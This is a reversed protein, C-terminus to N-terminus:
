FNYSLGGSVLYLRSNDSQNEHFELDFSLLIDFNLEEFISASGIFNARDFLFESRYDSDNKYIRKGFKNEIMFFLCNCANVVFWGASLSAGFNGLGDPAYFGEPLEPGGEGSEFWTGSM